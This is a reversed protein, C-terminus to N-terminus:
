PSAKGPPLVRFTLEPVRRRQLTSAVEARLWGSSEDLAVQADQQHSEDEAGSILVLLANGHGPLVERIMLGDFIPDGDAALAEEIAIQANHRLRQDKHSAKPEM